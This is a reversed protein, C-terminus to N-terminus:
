SIKMKGNDPSDPKIDTCYNLLYIRQWV